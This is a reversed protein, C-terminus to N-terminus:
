EVRDRLLSCALSQVQAGSENRVSVIGQRGVASIAVILAPEGAVIPIKMERPKDGGSEQCVSFAAVAISIWGLLLIRANFAFMTPVEDRGNFILACYFRDM